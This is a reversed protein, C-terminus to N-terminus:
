FDLNLVKNINQPKGWQRVLDIASIRGVANSDFPYPRKITNFKYNQVRCFSTFFTKQELLIKIFEDRSIQYSDSTQKKIPDFKSIYLHNYSIFVKIGDVLTLPGLKNNKLANKIKQIQDRTSGRKKSSLRQVERNIIEDIVDYEGDHDFSYIESFNQRQICHFDRQPLHNLNFSLALKSARSVYNKLYAPYKSKIKPILINRVYNREYSIDKNTPDSSFSLDKLKAYYNIQSKTMCMLPRLINANVIPIGISSKLSSSKFQQMLSWEFSDDIHHGMLIPRGKALNKLEGYRRQRSENEFNSSNLGKLKIIRHKLARKTAFDKLFLEDNINTKRNLHNFHILTLSNSYGVSCLLDVLVVSDIGGSFSVYIDMKQDFQFNKDLFSKFHKQFRIPM